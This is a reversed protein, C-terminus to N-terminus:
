PRWPLGVLDFETEEMAVWADTAVIILLAGVGVRPVMGLTAAEPDDNLPRGMTVGGIVGM